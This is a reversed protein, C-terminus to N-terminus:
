GLVRPPKLLVCCCCGCWGGVERLQEMFKLSLKRLYRHDRSTEEGEDAAAAVATIPNDDLVVQELLPLDDFLMWPFEALNCGSLLVFKTGNAYRLCTADRLHEIPNEALDLYSFQPFDSFHGDCSSLNRMLNKSLELSSLSSLEAVAAVPLRELYNNSLDLSTLANNLPFGFSGDSIRKLYNRSLKLTKLATLYVFAGSDIEKIGCGSADLLQLSDSALFGTRLTRLPNGSIELSKLNTNGRVVDEPLRAIRNDSLHLARLEQLPAFLETDVRLLFNNDLILVELRQHDAFTNNALSDIFNSSLDLLTLKSTGGGSTLAM